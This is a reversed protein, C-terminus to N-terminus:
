GDRGGVAGAELAIREAVDRALAPVDPPTSLILPRLEAPAAAWGGAAPGGGDLIRRLEREVLASFTAVADAPLEVGDLVLRDIAVELADGSM